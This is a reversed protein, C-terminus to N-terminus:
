SIPLFSCLDGGTRDKHAPNKQALARWDRAWHQALSNQQLIRKHTHDAVSAPTTRGVPPVVVLVLRTKWM